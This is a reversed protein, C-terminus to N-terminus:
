GGAQAGGTKRAGSNREITGRTAQGATGGTLQTTLQKLEEALQEDTLQEPQPGTVTVEQKEPKYWGNLKALRDIAGHRDQLEIRVGKDSVTFAKVVRGLKKVAKLDLQGDPTLFDAFSARMDATLLREAEEKKAIADKEGQARLRELERQVVGDKMLRSALSEIGPGDKYGAQLAANKQDVGSFVLQAFRVRRVTSANPAKDAM